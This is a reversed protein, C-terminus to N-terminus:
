DVENITVLLSHTDLLMTCFKGMFQQGLKRHDMGMLEAMVERAVIEPKGYKMDLYTWIEEASTSLTSINDLVKKPLSQCLM